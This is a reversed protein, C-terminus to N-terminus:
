IEAAYGEFSEGKLDTLFWCTTISSLFTFFLIIQALNQDPFRPCLNLSRASNSRPEFKVRNYGFRTQVRNFSSRTKLM